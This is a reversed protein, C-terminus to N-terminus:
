SSLKALQVAVPQGTQLSQMGAACVATAAYGDWTSPGVVEGRHCADVWAQVELDYARQFRVLYDNPISGGWHGGAGDTWTSSVGNDNAGISFSGRETVAECRVEYGVLSNVFVENTVLAGSAMRFLAIIPDTMTSVASTSAGTLVTIEVIEEGFLFRTIDVEHVLSDRVILDTTFWSPAHQNRHVNHTVLLREYHGGDLLQKLQAYEPDFRRMFGVQVVGRRGAREAEVIRLSSAADVTLPKECLTFKNAAICAVVQQEHVHASSAILVADVNPSAILAFPDEFTQVDGVLDSVMRLRTPDTDAIAVLEARAVRNALRQAHDAGMAGVGIVGVRLSSKTM